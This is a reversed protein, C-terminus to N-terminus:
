SMIMFPFVLNGVVQNTITEYTIRINVANAGMGGSEVKIPYMRLANYDIFMADNMRGEYDFEVSIVRQIRPEWQEIADRIYEEALAEFMASDQEFLLSQLRCGYEPNMFREGVPTSFLVWLSTNVKDIYESTSVTGSDPSFRFPFSMGKGLVEKAEL